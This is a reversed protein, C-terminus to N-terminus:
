VQCPRGNESLLDNAVKEDGYADLVGLAMQGTLKKVADCFFAPPPHVLRYVFVVCVAFSPTGESVWSEANQERLTGFTGNISCRIMEPLFMSFESLLDPAGRLLASVDNYVDQVAIQATKHLRLLEM